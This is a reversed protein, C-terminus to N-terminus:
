CVHVDSRITYVSSCLPRSLSLSLSVVSSLIGEGITMLVTAVYGSGGGVVVVIIVSTQFVQKM